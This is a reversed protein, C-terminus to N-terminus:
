AMKYRKRLSKNLDWTISVPSNVRTNDRGAFANATDDFVALLALDAASWGAPLEKNFDGASHPVDLFVLKAPQIGVTRFNMVKQIAKAHTTLISTGALAYAKSAVPLSPSLEDAKTYITLQNITTDDKHFPLMANLLSDWMAEADVPAGTWDLYSGLTGTLSTPIWARTLILHTHAGFITTYDVRGFAPEIGFEM